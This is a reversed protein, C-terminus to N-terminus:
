VTIIDMVLVLSLTNTGIAESTVEEKMHLIVPHLEYEVAHLSEALTSLAEVFKKKLKILKHDDNCVCYM